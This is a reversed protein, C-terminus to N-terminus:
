GTPLSFLVFIASKTQFIIYHRESTLYISKPGPTHWSQSVQALLSRQGRKWGNQGYLKSSLGKFEAGSILQIDNAMEELGLRPVSPSFIVWFPEFIQVKVDLPFKCFTILAFKMETCASGLLVRSGTIYCHMVETLDERQADGEAWGLNVSIWM